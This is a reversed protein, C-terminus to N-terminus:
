LQCSCCLAWSVAGTRKNLLVSLLILGSMCTKHRQHHSSVPVSMCVGCPFSRPRPKFGFNKQQSAVTSVVSGSHSFIDLDLMWTSSLDRLGMESVDPSQLVLAELLM